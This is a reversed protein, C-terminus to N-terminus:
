PKRNKQITDIIRSSSIDDRIPILVVRGGIHEVLEHGDVRDSTYNSGKTLVAPKLMEIISELRGAGFVVVHDVSDLASLIQVREKAKLVPRGSSLYKSFYPNNQAHEPAVLQVGATAIMAIASSSGLGRGMTYFTFLLTLGLLVGIVYPNTYRNKM